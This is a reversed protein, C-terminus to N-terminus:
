RLREPYPGSLELLVYATRPGLLSVPNRLGILVDYLLDAIWVFLQM